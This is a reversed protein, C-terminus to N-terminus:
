STSCSVISERKTGHLKHVYKPFCALAILTTLLTHWALVLSAFVLTDSCAVLLPSDLTGDSTTKDSHRALMQHLGIHTILAQVATAVLYIILQMSDQRQTLKVDRSVYRTGFQNDQCAFNLTSSTDSAM